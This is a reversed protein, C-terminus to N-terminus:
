QRGRIREELDTKNFARLAAVVKAVELVDRFIPLRDARQLLRERGSDDIRRISMKGHAMPLIRELLFLATVLGFRLHAPAREDFIRWFEPSTEPGGPLIANM